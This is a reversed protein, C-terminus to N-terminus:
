RDVPGKELPNTIIRRSGAVTKAPIDLSRSSYRSMGRAVAIGVRARQVGDAAVAVAQRRRDTARVGHPQLETRRKDIGAERVVPGVAKLHPAELCKGADQKLCTNVPM